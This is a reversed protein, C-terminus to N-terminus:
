IATMTPVTIGNGTLFQVGTMGYGATVSFLSDSIIRINTIIIIIVTTIIIIIIIALLYLSVPGNGIVLWVNYHYHFPFM